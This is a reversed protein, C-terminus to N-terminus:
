KRKKKSKVPAYGWVNPKITGHGYDISKLDSKFKDYYMDFLSTRSGRTLDLCIKEEYLYKVISADSPAKKTCVDKYSGNEVLIECGYKERSTERETPLWPSIKEEEVKKETKSEVTM